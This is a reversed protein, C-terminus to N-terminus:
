RTYLIYTIRYFAGLQRTARHSPARDQKDIFYVSEVFTLLISKQRV